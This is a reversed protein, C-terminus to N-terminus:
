KDFSEYHLYKTFAGVIMEVIKNYYRYHPIQDLIDHYKIKDM